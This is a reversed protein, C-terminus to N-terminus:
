APPQAKETLAPVQLQEVRALIRARIRSAAQFTRDAEELTADEPYDDPYRAPMYYESLLTVDDSLDQLGKDIELCDALLEDVQHIRKLPRNHFLAFGKLYKEALQQCHFCITDRPGDHAMLIEITAWDEEAKHKWAAFTIVDYENM